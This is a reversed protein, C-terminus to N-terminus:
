GIYSSTETNLLEVGLKEAIKLAVFERQKQNKILGNLFDAMVVSVSGANMKDVYSITGFTKLDFVLALGGNIGTLMKVIKKKQKIAKKSCKM